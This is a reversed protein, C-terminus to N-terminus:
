LVISSVLFYGTLAVYVPYFLYQIFGVYVAAAILALGAIFGSRLRVAWAPPLVAGLLWSGDLPPVPILNFVGIILSVVSVMALLELAVFWGPAGWGGGVAFPQALDVTFYVAAAPHAGNHFAAVALFATFAMYSLAVSAFPGAGVVLTQGRPWRSLRLPDFPVPRAWGFMLGSLAYVAAPVAVTGVLSVHSLPDLTLRGADSATSDGLFFAAVGHGLEHVVVSCLVAYLLMAVLLGKIIRPDAGYLAYVLAFLVLPAVWLLSATLASAGSPRALDLAREVWTEKPARPGRVSGAKRAADTEQRQSQAIRLMLEAQSNHPELDLLRELTQVGLDFRKQQVYLMGTKFLAETNDPDIALIKCYAALAEYSQNLKSSAQALAALIDTRRPAKDSAARLKASAEGFNKKEILSQAQAFLEAAASDNDTDPPAADVTEPAPAASLKLTNGCAACQTTVTDGSSVAPKAVNVARGCYPCTTHSGAL